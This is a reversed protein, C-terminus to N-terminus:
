RVVVMRTAVKTGASLRYWYVGGQMGAANWERTHCGSAVVGDELIAVTRGMMDYVRLSARCASPVSFVISTTTTVPNPWGPELLFEPAAAGAEVGSVPTSRAVRFGNIGYGRMQRVGHGTQANYTRASSRCVTGMDYWSGGRISRVSGPSPTTPGTPDTVGGVAYPAYWDWCWETVNGHMDYLGWANPNKSGPVHTIRKGNGCYWGAISLNYDLPDCIGHAMDGTSFDTMTGARCAYEWEAETPLRYGGANFDCVISAGGGSYCPTLGEAISLLNCFMVAEDWTEMEVPLSDNPFYSFNEPMLANWQGQVVEYRSMFFPRSITVTHVPRDAAEGNGTIDGMLFTGAPILVMDSKVKAIWPNQAQAMVLVPFLFLFLTKM